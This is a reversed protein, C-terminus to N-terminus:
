DNQRVMVLCSWGNEVSRERESLGLSAFTESMTQTEEVLIGSLILVGGPNMRAVLAPALRTLVAAIINAVVVDFLGSVDEVPMADAVVRDWVSNTAINENAVEVATADNDVARVQEVGLKAAAIALVGSGTGVDLLCRKPLLGDLADLCLRTTAHGGTGFAAGPDMDLVCDQPSPIYSEWTPRIVVRRTVRTVHFFSKWRDRWGDPIAQEPLRKSAEPVAGWGQLTRLAEDMTERLSPLDDARGYVGLRVWGTPMDALEPHLPRAEDGLVEAGAEVQSALLHLMQEEANAPIDVAVKFWGSDTSLTSLPNYTGALLLPSNSNLM